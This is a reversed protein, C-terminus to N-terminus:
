ITAKSRGCLRVPMKISAARRESLGQNYAEPGTSDTYGAVTFNVAYDEELIMKAQELLAPFGQGL